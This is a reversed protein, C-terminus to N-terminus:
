FGFILDSLTLAQYYQGFQQNDYAFFALFCVVATLKVIRASSRNFARDIIWPLACVSGIVFYRALRGFMNAGNISALLMFMLSIISMNLLICTKRDLYPDLYKHFAFTAVPVVAFVAVRFPNMQNGDFVEYEAVHKGISDAYELLSGITSEFTLMVGVTGLLLLLSKWSWPKGTMLPLFLFIFAYTHILGAILVLVFYRVWKREILATLALTLLASATIQKLAAMSFTFIGIAFYLFVTLAFNGESAYRRLFRVFLVTNFLAFATLYLHYNDTLSRFVSVTFYFLPNRLANLNEPDALFASVSDANLFGKIYTATDNYGTRLGSFLTMGVAMLVLFIDWRVPKGGLSPGSNQEACAALFVSGATILILNLM